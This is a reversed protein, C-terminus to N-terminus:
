FVRGAMQLKYDAKDSSRVVDLSGNDVGPPCEAM